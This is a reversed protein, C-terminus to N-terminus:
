KKNHDIKPEMTFVWHIIVQCIEIKDPNTIKMLGYKNKHLDYNM